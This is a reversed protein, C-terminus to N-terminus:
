VHGNLVSIFYDPQGVQGAKLSLELDDFLPNSSRARCLPSGPALPALFELAYLSLGRAVYGCTDGGVVCVRRVGSTEVLDRLLIGQAGGLRNRLNSLDQGLSLAPDDSGRASYLAISRDDCLAACAEKKLRAHEAAADASLLRPVNIRVLKFGQREAKDLQAATAPAASGSMVIIKEARGPPPLDPSPELRGSHRLHTTLAYELGSSGVMFRNSQEALTELVEGIVLLHADNLTDFLFVTRGEDALESVRELTAEPGRELTLVDVLGTSLHTQMGLHRRVDAEAMPTAPHRSMTPHRDLRYTEAEVTAFLNGFAVYRKLVPAGVVLPVVRQPFAERALELAKGISGIRPSSDFTSCVKYHTYTAELKKLARFIPPLEADMEEPTLSRNIGAIGVARAEPFAALQENTPPALFLVTPVGALSLVELVDTSGTFDDGYYAFLYSM